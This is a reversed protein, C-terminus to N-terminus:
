ARRERLVLNDPANNLPDGDRHIVEFHSLNPRFEGIFSIAAEYWDVPVVVAAPLRQRKLLTPQGTFRVRDVIEGLRNRAQEIGIEDM